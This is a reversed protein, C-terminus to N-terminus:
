GKHFKYDERRITSIEIPDGIRESLTSLQLSNEEKRAVANDM